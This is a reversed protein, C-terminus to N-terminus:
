PEPSQVFNENLLINIIFEYDPLSENYGTLIQRSHLLRLYYLM